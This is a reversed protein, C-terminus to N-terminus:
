VSEAQIVSILGDTPLVGVLQFGAKALLKGHEAATRGRGHTTVLLILDLTAASPADWGTLEEVILLHGGPRMARRCNALIAGAEDDNWDHLVHSLVYTDGAEPVADFFSGSVISCRDRVGAATLREDAQVAMGPLDFLVGSLTPHASLITALLNGTSGGVDVVCSRSGFDYAAVVSAAERGHFGLMTDSLYAAMTPTEVEYLPKGAARQLTPEGTRVADVLRGAADWVGPRAMALIAGAVGSGGDVALEEGDATLAVRGDREERVLGHAGLCRLLRHLSAEDTGSRRALEAPTQPNDRLHDALRLEVAVHLARAAIHATAM